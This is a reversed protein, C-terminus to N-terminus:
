SQQELSHFYSKEFPREIVLGKAMYGLVASLPLSPRRNVIGKFWVDDLGDVTV